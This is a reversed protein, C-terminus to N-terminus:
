TRDCSTIIFGYNILLQCTLALFKNRPNTRFSKGFLHFYIDNGIVFFRVKHNAKKIGILRNSLMQVIVGM